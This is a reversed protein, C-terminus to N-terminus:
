DTKTDQEKQAQYEKLANDYEVQYTKLADDLILWLALCTADVAVGNNKKFSDVIINVIKLAQEAFVSHKSGFEILRPIHVFAQSSTNVFDWITYVQKKESLREQVNM